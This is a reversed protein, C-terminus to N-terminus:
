NNQCFHVRGQRTLKTKQFESLATKFQLLLENKKSSYVNVFLVENLLM